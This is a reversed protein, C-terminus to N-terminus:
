TKKASEKKPTKAAEELATIRKNMREYANNVQAVVDELDKNSVM